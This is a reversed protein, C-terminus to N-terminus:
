GDSKDCKEMEGQRFRADVQLIVGERKGQLALCQWLAAKSARADETDGDSLLVVGQLTEVFM